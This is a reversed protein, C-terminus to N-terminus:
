LQIYKERINASRLYSAVVEFVLQVTYYTKFIESNM